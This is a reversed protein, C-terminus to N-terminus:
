KQLSQPIHAGSGMPSWQAEEFDGVKAYGSVHAAIRSYNTRALECSGAYPM